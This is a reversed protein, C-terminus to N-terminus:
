HTTLTDHIFSELLELGLIHSNPKYGSVHVLYNNDGTEIINFRTVTGFDYKEGIKYPFSKILNLREKCENASGSFVSCNHFNTSEQMVLQFGYQYIEFGRM